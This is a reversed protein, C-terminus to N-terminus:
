SAGAQLSDDQQRCMRNCVAIVIMALLAGGIVDALFHWGTTLTALVILANIVVGFTFWGRHKRVAYALLIAWTTHFSPFTVLGTPFAVHMADAGRLAELQGLYLAQMPTMEYGYHAFPGAAPMLLFSLLLIPECIMFGIVFRNLSIRDRKLSLLLLVLFTQVIIGDYLVALINRALPMSDAFVKVDAVCFGLSADINALWDDVLPGGMTGVAYLAHIESLGSSAVWALACFFMGVRTWKQYTCFMGAGALIIITPLPAWWVEAFSVRSPLSNLAWLNLGVAIALIVAKVRTAPDSLFPAPPANYELRPLAPANINSM